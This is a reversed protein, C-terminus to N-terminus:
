IIIVALIIAMIIIIITSLLIIFSLCLLRLPPHWDNHFRRGLM